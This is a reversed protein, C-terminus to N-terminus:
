KLLDLFSFAKELSSFTIEFKGNGELNDGDFFWRSGKVIVCLYPMDYSTVEYPHVEITQGNSLSGCMKTMYVRGNISKETDLVFGKKTLEVVAEVLSTIREM